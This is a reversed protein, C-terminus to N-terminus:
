FIAWLLLATAALALAIWWWGARRSPEHSSLIWQGCLSCKEADEYVEGGCLPCRFIDASEDETLDSDAPGPGGDDLPQHRQDSM